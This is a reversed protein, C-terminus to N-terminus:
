VQRAMWRRCISSPVISVGPPKRKLAGKGLGMGGPGWGAPLGSWIVGPLGMAPAGRPKGRPGSSRITSGSPVGLRISLAKEQSAGTAACPIICLTM